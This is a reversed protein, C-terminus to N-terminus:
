PQIYYSHLQIYVNGFSSYFFIKSKVLGIDKAYYYFAQRPNSQTPPLPPSIYYNDSIVESSAFTGAVVAISTDTNGTRYVTHVIQTSTDVSITDNLTVSLPYLGEDYKVIWGASDAYLGSGISFSRDNFHYYTRGNIITDYDIKLTDYQTSMIEHPYTWSESEMKYVWFNGTKLPPFYASPTYTPPTVIPNKEKKCNTLFLLSSLTLILLLTKMKSYNKNSRIRKHM